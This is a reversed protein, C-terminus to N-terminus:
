NGITCNLPFYGNAAAEKASTFVEETAYSSQCSRAPFYYKRGDAVVGNFTDTKVIKAGGLAYNNYYQSGLPIGQVFALVGADNITNNWDEQSIYPVTFTYSIGYRKADTNYRNITHELDDQLANVITTRRMADFTAPDELLKVNTQEQLESRFGHLWKGDAARHMTVYDDLTFAYTNNQEDKYAYPKKPSWVHRFETQGEANQYKEFQYVYYGDYGVVMLAPIYGNLVQQGNPDTAVNFNLYMTHFFTDAAAEKNIRVQKTSQYQSEALQSANTILAHAADQTATDIAKNYRLQLQLNNRNDEQDLNNKVFVFLLILVFIVALNTIKM